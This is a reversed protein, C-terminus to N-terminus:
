GPTGNLPVASSSSMKTLNRDAARTATMMLGFLGVLAYCHVSLATLTEWPTAIWGVEPRQEVDMLIMLHEMIRQPPLWVIVVIFWFAGRVLESAPLRRWLLVLPLALLLLYHDWTIPSVLLMGIISLGFGLDCANRSRAQSVFRALIAVIVLASVGVAVLPLLKSQVGPEILVLPWRKQPDFLKWWLGSLSLNPWITRFTSTQPIVDMFYSRYIDVGLMAGTVLILVALTIAGAALVRGQRRFLFYLFLFAPFFKLATAIGLLAGAWWPHDYRDAAWTGILLLLLVLNFQGQIMQHWFPNCLLLLPVAVLLSWFSFHLGLQRSILWASAALAALSLLNWVLFAKPFDMAALPFTLLVSTPPHANLEIFCLDEPHREIGLYRQCTKEQPTYVPLGELRNRASAWEQFLDPIFKGHGIQRFEPWLTRLYEPGQWWCVVNAVVWWLLIYRMPWPHTTRQM